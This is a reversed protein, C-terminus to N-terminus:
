WYYSQCVKMDHPLFLSCLGQHNVSKCNKSSFVDCLGLVHVSSLVSSM